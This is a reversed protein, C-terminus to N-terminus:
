VQVAVADPDRATPREREIGRHDDPEESQPAESHSHRSPETDPEAAQFRRGTGRRLYAGDATQSLFEERVLAALLEECTSQDLNWLRRAQRSTLRLGPMEIYEMRIRTLLDRDVPSANLM